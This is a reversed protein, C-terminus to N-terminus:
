DNEPDRTTTVPIWLPDEFHLLELMSEDAFSIGSYYICVIIPGTVMADTSIDFFTPPDGLSFGSVVPGMDTVEFTTTGAVDVTNFMLSVTSEGTADDVPQVVVDM